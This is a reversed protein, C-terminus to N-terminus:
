VEIGGLPCRKERQVYDGICDLCYVYGTQKVMTPNKLKKTCISCYGNEKVDEEPMPPSVEVKNEPGRVKKEKKQTFYWTLVKHGMLLM